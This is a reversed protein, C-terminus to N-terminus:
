VASALDCGLRLQNCMAEDKPLCSQAAAFRAFCRRFAAVVVPDFQTGAGALITRRARAPTWADKYCRQSTLADYVDAVAVIRACLPIQKGSLGTPYGQGDWREHHFRAIDMAM